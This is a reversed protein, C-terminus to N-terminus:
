RLGVGTRLEDALGPFNKEEEEATILITPKMLILLTQEEKSEIRNTFFRNIIPLKSLVPVGTEIELETVLRQGGLLITGEDPVTVTTRVRTVTLTPLQIFSQTDASNVLQGGAVATVPERGFGDIRSVGADVNMTVYRRDASIVGEVLLTVGENAVDVEPDFGVASDATQPQLDSIFAQQTVVFINAIQGNTFTLRPATLQVSRRDAQTAQILFDVQIDDLFQGAIGLAPSDQLIGSAFENGSALGAGINLSNQQAGIPSWRKPNPLGQTLFDPADTTDAFAGPSTITRQLGRRGGPGGDDFDFLDSPQLTPDDARLVRFQNNDSNLVLDIDFGVQEFWDQNVLLFKTEVNIQMSRIERLKSLLGTIERHNRPTNRVILSGNLEDMTGTDGGNARWGEYDVNEQIIRQIQEIRERREEPDRQQDQQNEQFPSQGGGGEGQQLVGQLDIQPADFYDPIQLLLDTINYIVLTTHRNLDDRSAIMLVGDNVAWDAKAFNDTSAKELVRDLVTRVPMPSFNMTIPTERDIGIEGLSEWDVDINLQTVSEVFALVDELTNDTFDVPVKTTEMAALVRRDEPSEAFASTEGRRQSLSPWDPPYEMIDAPPMMAEENDLTQITHRKIKEKQIANFRRYQIIDFIIDRLLLAAPNNPDLFLVEDVVQLAEEYKLERQLARIRDLAEHIRRERILQRNQESERVRAAQAAEARAAEEIRIREATAESRLRLEELRRGFRDEFETESFDARNTSAVVGARATLDRAAAADGRALAAEAQQVFNDFEAVTRQRRLTIDAAAGEALPAGVAGIRARAEALGQEAHAIEEQSLYRRNATLSLNYKEIAERYRSEQMALDAEALIRQAEAQLAARILDDTPTPGPEPPPASGPEAAPQPDGFPQRFPDAAPPAPSPEPQPAPQEQAGPAPAPAPEVMEPPAPEPVPDVPQPAPEPAPRLPRDTRRVVGPQMLGLAAHEGIDFPRGAKEELEVIRLQYQEVLRNQAADLDIGSRLVASLGAKAAEYRRAEFDRVAQELLGPVLAALERRQESVQRSVDRARAHQAPSLAGKALVAKAHRDAGRLDGTAVAHEAKQLSIEGPDAARIKQDLERSLTLMAGQQEASLRELAAPETLGTLEARAQILRGQSALRQARELSEALGDGPAAAPREPASTAQALASPAGLGLGLVVAAAAMMQGTARNLDSPM